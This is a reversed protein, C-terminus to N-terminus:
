FFDGYSKTLANISAAVKSSPGIQDFFCDRTYKFIGLLLAHLMESPCAGHIGQKNYPHFRIKYFANQIMQQSLKKLGDFDQAEVLQQIMPVTKPPYNAFVLDSEQTPCTCYRCLQAVNGTRSKYSGCLEDAEDTDCKIFMLFPVFEIDEYTKGRYRLDWLFGNNQVEVYSTLLCDLMTHFDQAKCVDMTVDEQGEGQVLQLFDADIHRSEYLLQKGRSSPTSVQAVYGLTRWAFEKDRHKRNHIGLAIKLATITLSSFHGTVAGDIYMVIPLLVQKQPFKIFKQYAEHYARATHLESITSNLTVPPPPLLPDNGHFAYDSDKVRPDTLLSEICDWANHVTLTVTAKSNPPVITLNRAEKGKFHYRLKLFKIMKERSYYRDVNNVHKLGECPRIDGKERHHWELIADYTNLAARTGKLVGMLRVARKQAITFTNELLGQRSRCYIKFRDRMTTNPQANITRDHNYDPGDVNPPNLLADPPVPPAEPPVPPVEPPDLPTLSVQDQAESNDWIDDVHPGGVIELEDESSSELIGLAQQEEDEIEMGQPDNPSASEPLCKDIFARLKMGPLSTLLKMEMTDSYQSRKFTEWGAVYSCRTRKAKGHYGLLQDLSSLDFGQGVDTQEFTRKTPISAVPPAKRNCVASLDTIGLGAKEKALCEPKKDIHQRLGRRTQCSFRCYDCVYPM